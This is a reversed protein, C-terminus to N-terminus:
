YTLPEVGSMPEMFEVGFPANENQHNGHSSLRSEVGFEKRHKEVIAAFREM